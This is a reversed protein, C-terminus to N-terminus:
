GSHGLLRRHEIKLCRDEVVDLGAARARQAAEAHVVGPQLWLCRIGRSEALAIVEEVLDPVADPRRFVDVLEFPEAIDALSARATEGHIQEGSVTPNVPIVRYGAQQLYKMVGHSARAPSASAGVMAITRTSRLIGLMPEGSDADQNRHRM